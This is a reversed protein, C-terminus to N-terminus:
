FLPCFTIYLAYLKELNIVISLKRRANPKLVAILLYGSLVKLTHISPEMEISFIKTYLGAFDNIIM